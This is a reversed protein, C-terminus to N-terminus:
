TRRTRKCVHAEPKGCASDNSGCGQQCSEGLLALAVAYSFLLLEKLFGMM